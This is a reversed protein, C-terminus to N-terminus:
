STDVFGVFYFCVVFIATNGVELFGLKPRNSARTSGAQYYDFNYDYRPGYWITDFPNSSWMNFNISSRSSSSSSSDRKDDDKSSTIMIFTTGVIIISAFLTLGFCIKIGKYLQPLLPKLRQVISKQQLRLKLNTPFSYVIDGSQTVDMDGGVLSALEMLGKRASTIDTGAIVAADSASLRNTKEVADIISDPPTSFNDRWSNMSVKYRSIYGRHLKNYSLGSTSFSTSVIFLTVLCVLPFRIVLLM